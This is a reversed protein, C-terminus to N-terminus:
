QVTNGKILWGRAYSEAPHRHIHDHCPVCVALLSGPSHDGHRRLKRHHLQSAERWCGDAMVECLGRSREWVQERANM